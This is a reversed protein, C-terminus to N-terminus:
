EKAIEAEVAAPDYGELFRLSSAFWAILASFLIAIGILALVGRLGIWEAVTASVAMGLPMSGQAVLLRM